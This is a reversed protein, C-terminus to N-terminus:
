SRREALLAQNARALELLLKDAVAGQVAFDLLSRDDLIHILRNHLQDQAHPNHWFNVRNAHHEVEIVINESL